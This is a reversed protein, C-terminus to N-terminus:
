DEFEEDEYEWEIEDEGQNVTALRMWSLVYLLGVCIMTMTTGLIWPNTAGISEELFAKEQIPKVDIFESNQTEGELTVEIRQIGPDSPKWDVILTSVSEAEIFVFSRSLMSRDGNLNVAEVLIDADGSLKGDNRIHVQVITPEDVELSSKSLEVGSREISYIPKYHELYWIHAPFQRSNKESAFQNGAIDRGELRVKLQTQEHLFGSAVDTIDIVGTFELRLGTNVDGVLDLKSDGSAISDQSGIATIWWFIKVSNVDIGYNESVVVTINHSDLSLTSSERPSSFEVVEPGVADVLIWM